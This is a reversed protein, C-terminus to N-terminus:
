KATGTKRPRAAKKPKEPVPTAKEVVAEEPAVAKAKAAGNRQQGLGLQKALASRAASYGASTMPYDAPLGHKARYTEPTLGRLTLHRKMTRYPKGDEFSILHDPTISKKIQAPTAKQIKDAELASSGGSSLGSIAAHVSSLLDALSGVPVSNNSVYAAVIDAALEIYNAQFDRTSDAM